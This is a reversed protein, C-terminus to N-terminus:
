FTVQWVTGAGAAGGLSCSGIITNANILTPAAYPREGDAGGTFNWLITENYGGSSNPKYVFLTGLNNTGGYETTGFIVGASTVVLNSVPTAGDSATSGFQHIVNFAWGGGAQPTMTWMTGKGYEGFREAVGYLVRNPGFVPSGYIYGGDAGGTFDYLKNFTWTTSGAPPPILQFITGHNAIGGNQAVGYFIGTTTDVALAGQIYAGDAGDFSHLVNYTWSSGQNVLEIVSGYNGFQGGNQTTTYLKGQYYTINNEPVNPTGTADSFRILVKYNWNASGSVPNLEYITGYGTGASGGFLTTGWWSGGPIPIITAQTNAGDAGGEFSHLITETYPGSGSVPPALKFVIGCGAPLNMNECSSPGGSITTGYINGSSDVILQGNVGLGDAPSNQFTHLVTLSPAVQRDAAGMASPALLLAAPLAM